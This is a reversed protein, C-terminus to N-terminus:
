RCDIALPRLARLLMDYWPAANMTTVTMAQGGVHDANSSFIVRFSQIGAVRQPFPDVFVRLLEPNAAWIETVIRWVYGRDIALLIRMVPTTSAMKRSPELSHSRVCM